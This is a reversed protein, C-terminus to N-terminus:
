VQGNTWCREPPNGQDNFCGFSWGGNWTVDIRLQDDPDSRWNLRAIYDYTIRATSGTGVGSGLFTNGYTFSCDTGSPDHTFDNWKVIGSVKNIIKASQNVISPNFEWGGNWLDDCVNQSNPGYGYVGVVQAEVGSGDAQRRVDTYVCVFDRGTHNEDDYSNCAGFRNTPYAKHTSATQTQAADATSAGPTTALVVSAVVVAAAGLTAVRVRIPNRM